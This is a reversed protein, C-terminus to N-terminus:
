GCEDSVVNIEALTLTLCTNWTTFSWSNKRFIYRFILNIYPLLRNEFKVSSLKLLFFVMGNNHM